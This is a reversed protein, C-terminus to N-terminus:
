NVEEPNPLSLAIVAELGERTMLHSPIEPAGMSNAEGVLVGPEGQRAHDKLARNLGPEPVSDPEVPALPFTMVFEAGSAVRPFAELYLRGDNDRVAQNAVALGIGSGGTKNTFFPEFIRNRLELPVGPGGDGFRVTVAPGGFVHSTTLDSRVKLFGGEPQAELANIMLNLIVSKIQGPRAAVLDVEADLDLELAVGQGRFRTMLLRASEGIQDHLSVVQPPSDSSRSLQLVQSVSASLREVEALSIELPELCFGPIRDQETWRKLRQLNLKISTLPNRIEHAFYASLQGVVALRGSQDVQEMMERIRGLMRNFALTLQGVEGSTTIPLWPSLEGAGIHEAAGALDRLAKTFRGLLVSFALGTFVALGLVFIWYARLLRNLPTLAAGAHSTAVLIWAGDPDTSFAGLEWDGGKRFKFKSSGGGEGAQGTAFALPPDVADGARMPTPGDNYLVKGSARDLLLLAHAQNLGQRAVLDSVWFGARLSGAWGDGQVDTTFEVLASSGRGVTRILDRPPSGLLTGTSGSGGTLELFVAETLPPGLVGSIEGDPNGAALRAVTSPSSGLTGLADTIESETADYSRGATLATEQLQEQVTDVLLREAQWYGFAALILLPVIALSFFLLIIKFRLSM